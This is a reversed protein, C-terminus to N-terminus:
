FAIGAAATRPRAAFRARELTEHADILATAYPEYLIRGPVGEFAQLTGPPHADWLGAHHWHHLNDWDPRDVVPYLCINQLPIGARLAAACEDAIFRMWHPRDPGPHSTESLAIPRRYRNYAEALLSQLPRWRLDGDENAWPLFSGGLIWQNNYYYNFGLIDLYEPRGGLEPCLRGCLMDVSQFQEEHAKAAAKVEARTADERPVLNVLPETTLIRIGPDAERAEEIGAIFARVFHYKVDWGMRVAYPAAGGVEGCLWSLFSVENIPTIVLPGEPVRDRYWRVFAGCLAAFRQAFRPHLPSCDDPFGFHCIDWLVQTGTAQAARLIAEPGSWDYHGERREVRSWCIGERVTRIGFPRLDSYDGQVRARHGSTELLDVRYGRANVHDACEYGASFFSRFPSSVTPIHNAVAPQGRCINPRFHPGPM